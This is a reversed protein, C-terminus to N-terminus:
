GADVVLWRLIMGWWGGGSKCGINVVVGYLQHGAKLRNQCSWDRGIMRRLGLGGRWCGLCALLM